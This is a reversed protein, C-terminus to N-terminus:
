RMVLINLKTHWMQYGPIQDMFEDLIKKNYEAKAIEYFDRLKHLINNGM